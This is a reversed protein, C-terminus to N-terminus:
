LRNPHPHNRRADQRRLARRRQRGARQMPWEWRVEQHSSGAHRTRGRSPWSLHRVGAGSPGRPDAHLSRIRGPLRGDRDRGQRHRGAKARSNPRAHPEGATWDRRRQSRANRPLPSIRTRVPLACAPISGPRPYPGSHLTPGAPPYSDARSLAARRIPDGSITRSRADQYTIPPRTRRAVSHRRLLRKM